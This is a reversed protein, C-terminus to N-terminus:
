ARGGNAAIADALRRPLEHAAVGISGAGMTLVVDGDAIVGALSALQTRADGRHEIVSGVAFAAFVLTLATGTSLLSLLSLKQSLSSREFNLM